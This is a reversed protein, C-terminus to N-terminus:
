LFIVVEVVTVQLLPLTGFLAALRGFAVVRLTPVHLKLVQAM